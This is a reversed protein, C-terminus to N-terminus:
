DLINRSYTDVHQANNINNPVNSNFYFMANDDALLNPDSKFNLAGIDNLYILFIQPGM